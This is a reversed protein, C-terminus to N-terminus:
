RKRKPKAFFSAAISPTSVPQKTTISSSAKSVLQTSTSLDKTILKALQSTFLTKGEDRPVSTKEFLLESAREITIHEKILKDFIVDKVLKKTHNVVDLPPTHKSCIEVAVGLALELTKEIPMQFHDAYKVLLDSAQEMSKEESEYHRNLITAAILIIAEQNNFTNGTPIDKNLIKSALFTSTLKNSYEHTQDFKLITDMRKQEIIKQLDSSNLGTIESIADVLGNTLKPNNNAVFDACKEINDLDENPTAKIKINCYEKLHDYDEPIDLKVNEPVVFDIDIGKTTTILTTPVECSALGLKLSDGVLGSIDSKVTDLILSQNSIHLNEFPQLFSSMCIQLIVKQEAGTTIPNTIDVLFSRESKTTRKGDIITEYKIPPASFKSDFCSHMKWSQGTGLTGAQDTSRMIYEIQEGTLNLGHKENKQQLAERFHEFSSDDSERITFTRGDKRFSITVRNYDEIQRQKIGYYEVSENLTHLLEDDTHGEVISLAVKAAIASVNRNETTLDSHEKLFRIAAQPIPIKKYSDDIVAQPKNAKISQILSGYFDLREQVSLAVKPESNLRNYFAKLEPHVSQEVTYASELLRHLAEKEKINEPLPSDINQSSETSARSRPKELSSLELPLTPNIAVRRVANYDIAYTKSMSDNKLIQHM